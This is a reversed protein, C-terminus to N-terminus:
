FKLETIEAIYDFESNVPYLGHYRHDNGRFLALNFENEDDEPEITLFGMIRELEQSDSAINHILIEVISYSQRYLKRVIEMIKDAEMTGTKHTKVVELKYAQDPRSNCGCEMRGNSITFLEKSIEKYFTMGKYFGAMWGGEEGYNERPSKPFYALMRDGASFQESFSVNRVIEKGELVAKILNDEGAKKVLRDIAKEEEPNGLVRISNM